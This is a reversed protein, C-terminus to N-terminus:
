ETDGSGGLKGRQRRGLHPRPSPRQRREELRDLPAARKRTVIAAEDVLVQRRVTGPHRRPLDHPVVFRLTDFIETGLVREERLSIPPYFRKIQM